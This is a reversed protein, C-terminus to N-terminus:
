SRRQARPNMISSCVPEPRAKCFDPLRGSRWYDLLGNDILKLFRPDRRLSAAAPSSLVAISFAAPQDLWTRDDDGPNRIPMSPFLRNAIVFAQDLDGLDALATMCLFQTTWRLSDAACPRAVAARDHARAAGIIKKATDRDLPMRDGDDESAFRELEAYDGRSEIGVLRSWYIAPHNPWLRRSQRFLRDANAPHGQEELLRLVRGLKFPNLSDKDLSIQDLQLAEDSRGVANLLTGLGSTLSASNPDIALGKRLHDECQRLYAPSHLSCWLGYADGFDPALAILRGAAERGAALAAARQDRPLQDLVDGTESALSFQAIASNPTKPAVQRALDYARFSDGADVTFSVANLLQAAIAPDSPHRQDLVMLTAALSLNTAVSAGIEDPLATTSKGDSEFRHSYVIVGHRADEVQVFEQISSASREVDGSVLLDPRRQAVSGDILAAPYGDQTLAYYLSARTAAALDRVDRDDSDALIPLVAVTPVDTASRSATERRLYSGTVAILLIAGAFIAIRWPKIRARAGEIEVLRYGVRSITEIEFGGARQAFRRLTSISRNIVDDGVFRADWCLEVLEDRTVVRGKARVLAVLVKLNQPQLREKRGAFAAERSKPDITAGGVQFEREAALDIRRQTQSVAADM